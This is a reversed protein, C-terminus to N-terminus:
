FTHLLAGYVIKQGNYKEIIRKNNVKTLITEGVMYTNKIQFIYMYGGNIFSFIDM